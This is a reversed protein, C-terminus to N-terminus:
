PTQHNTSSVIKCCPKQCSIKQTAKAENQLFFDLSIFVGAVMILFVGAVNVLMKKRLTTGLSLYPMRNNAKM